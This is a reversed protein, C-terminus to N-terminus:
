KKSLFSELDLNQSQAHELMRLAWISRFVTVYNFWTPSIQIYQTGILTNQVSNGTVPIKLLIVRNFIIDNIM